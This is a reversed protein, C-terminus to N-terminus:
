PLTTVPDVCSFGWNQLYYGSTSLLISWNFFPEEAYRV